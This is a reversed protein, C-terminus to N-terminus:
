LAIINTVAMLAPFATNLGFYFDLFESQDNVYLNEEDLAAHFEPVMTRFVRLFAPFLSLNQQCITLYQLWLHKGKAWELKLYYSAYLVCVCVCVCLCASVCVCVCVYTYVGCAARVCTRVCVFVYAHVLVCVCM